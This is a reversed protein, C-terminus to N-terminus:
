VVADMAHVRRDELIAKEMQELFTDVLGTGNFRLMDYLESVIWCIVITIQAFRGDRWPKKHILAM